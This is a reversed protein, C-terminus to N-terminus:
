GRAHWGARPRIYVINSDGAPPRPLGLEPAAAALGRYGANELVRHFAHNGQHPYGVLFDIEPYMDLVHRVFAAFAASGVGKGRYRAEGLLFDISAAAPIAVPFRRQPRDAWRFCQAMGAPEGRFEYVFVRVPITGDIRPGYKDEIGAPTPPERPWWTPVVPDSLWRLLVPLDARALPRFSILEALGPHVAPPHTTDSM